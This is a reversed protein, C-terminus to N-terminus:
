FLTPQQNTYLPKVLPAANKLDRVYQRAYPGFLYLEKPEVHSIVERMDKVNSTSSLYFRDDVERFADEPNLLDDMSNEVYLIPGDPLPKRINNNEKMPLLAVRNKFRKRSFVSYSGLHSNYTEYVRNIRHITTHVALPINNDCLLKTIEQASGNKCQVIPFIGNKMYRDIVALLREKEKKRSPLQNKPYPYKASMILIDAKKLQMQRVTPIKHIQIEPAYLVSKSNIELHLLAGGLISGSPLLEMKLKGISFPRNYQCILANPKKNNAELLRITEETAIVQPGETNAQSTASSLFSLGNSRHSDLWLISGEFHLGDDTSKILVDKLDENTESM